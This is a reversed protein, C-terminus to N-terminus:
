KDSCNVFDTEITVTEVTLQKSFASQVRKQQCLKVCNEPRNQQKIKSYKWLTTRKSRWNTCHTQKSTQDSLHWQNWSKQITQWNLQTLQTPCHCTDAHIASSALTSSPAHDSRRRHSARVFDRSAQATLRDDDHDSSRRRWTRDQALCCHAAIWRREAADPRRWTRRWVLRGWECTYWIM